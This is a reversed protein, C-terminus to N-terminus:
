CRAQKKRKGIRGMKLTKNIYETALPVKCSTDGMDVSVKGIKQAIDQALPHLEESFCGCAIVFGNICYKERNEDQQITTPAQKLKKIIFDADLEQVPFVSLLSSLTTYGSTRIKSDDSQIWEIALEMGFKSSAAAWPVAYESIMYWNAQNVWINLTEKTILEDSNILAALYMADSNGTDFLELALNHDTKIKKVLKKLDGIKVGFLPEKAGHRIFTKKTQATGMAELAKMTENLTM